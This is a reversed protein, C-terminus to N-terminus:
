WGVTVGLRYARGPMPYRRVVEYEEDLANLLEARVELRAPGLSFGRWLALRLEAYAPMDTSPLHETSAWRRGTCTLGASGSLWPHECAVAVEGSHRPTYPLSRGYAPTGPATRDAARRCAYAAALRLTLGRPLRLGGILSADLGAADVRGLNVTRWVFLNYPVSVIKDSVRAAYADVALLWPEVAAAGGRGLRLTAGAAVQRSREPRLDANGLHQFYAESFAPLRFLEQASLRLALGVDRRRVAQWDAAFAPTLRRHLQGARGAAHEMFLHTLGRLTLTLTKEGFLRARLSLSQQLADRRVRPVTAGTAGLWDTGFDMALAAEFRGRTLAAGATAYAQHQRYHQRLAGGPYQADLDAYRSDQWAYRGGAMLALGRASRRWLTQAYAQRELLRETARRTYLTVPGPLRRHSGDYGAKTHWGGGELAVTHDAELRLEQMRSGHRRERSVLSVNRLTYPYNNAAYAFQGSVAAASRPGLPLAYRLSPRVLGFSGHELGAEGRRRDPQPLRSTLAVHAAALLRPPLLLTAEGGSSLRVAALRATAPLRGLDVQGGQGAPLPMGDYSVATHAAGLSRVSVTKLGGAGGYDRVLAGPMWRLADAVSAVGRRAFGASDIRGAAVGGAGPGTFGATVTARAITDDPLACWAAARGPAVVVGAAGWVLASRWAARLSDRLVHLFM